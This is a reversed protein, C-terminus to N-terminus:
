LAARAGCSDCFVFLKQVDVRRDGCPAARAGCSDCFVFLKQVDVVGIVGSPRAHVALIAFLCVSLKQVDVVGIGAPPRAHVALIAFSLCNKCMSWASGRLPGRTCRLFRLFCVTKACRGHRDRCLARAGYSDILQQGEVVGIGASPPARVALIACVFLKQVDGVGIGSLTQNECLASPGM